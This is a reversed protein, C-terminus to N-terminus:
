VLGRLEDVGHRSPDFEPDFDPWAQDKPSMEVPQCPWAIAFAPDNWRIGREAAPAYLASVFYLAETDPARTLVAHAFGRPVYMALRNDDNLEAGFWGRYTPSDPRLDIIADFLAGKIARVLKVEAAGGIQYHLGRLTGSQRSLSTNVQEFRTALGAAAFEEVCFGRAFFGREDGHREMEIVYAGAL